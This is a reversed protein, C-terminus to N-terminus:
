HAAIELIPSDANM